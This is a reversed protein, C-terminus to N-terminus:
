RRKKNEFYRHFAVVAQFHKCFADFDEVTRVAATHDIFFQLVHDNIKSSPSRRAYAAKARLMKFEPRLREFVAARNGREGQLDLSRKLSLVDEYFRRLQTATVDAFLKAVEEAKEDLLTANLIKKDKDQFYAVPRPPPLTRGRDPNGGPRPGPPRLAM